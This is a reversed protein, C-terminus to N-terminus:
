QFAEVLSDDGTRDPHCLLHPAQLSRWPTTRTYWPSPPAAARRRCQCPGAPFFETMSICSVWIGRTCGDEPAGATGKIRKNRFSKYLMSQPCGATVSQVFRSLRVGEENKGATFGKLGPLGERLFREGFLIYYVSVAYLPSHSFFPPPRIAIEFLFM